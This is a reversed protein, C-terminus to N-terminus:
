ESVVRVRSDVRSREIYTVAGPNEAVQELATQIDPVEAPPRGRGTFIIRAWHVKLQAPSKAAYENYFLERLPSGDPQDLPVAKTGGPLRSMKGLFIDAIQDRTLRTVASQQSVIVVLEPEAGLFVSAVSLAIALAIL